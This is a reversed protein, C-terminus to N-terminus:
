ERRPPFVLVTTPRLYNTPDFLLFTLFHPKRRAKRALFAAGLIIVFAGLCAGAIVIVDIGDRNERLPMSEIAPKPLAGSRLDHSGLLVWAAWYRPHAVPLDGTNEIYTRQATCLADAIAAGDHWYAYNFRALLAETTDPTISWLTTYVSSVGAMRLARPFGVIEGQVVPGAVGGCVAIGATRPKEGIYQLFDEPVADSRQGNGDDSLPLFVQM